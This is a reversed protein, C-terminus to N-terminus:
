SASGREMLKPRGPKTEQAGPPTLAPLTPSTSKPEAAGLAESIVGTGPPTPGM